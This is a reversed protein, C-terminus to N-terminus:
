GEPQGSGVLLRGAMKEQDLKKTLDQEEKEM